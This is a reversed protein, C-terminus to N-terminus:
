EQDGKGSLRLTLLVETGGQEPVEIKLGCPSGYFLRIRNHVNRMGIRASKEVKTDEFSANLRERVDQEMGKGNDKIRIKLLSGCEEASVHLTGERRVEKLGHYIANEVLPQLVAKLIQRNELEAPCDTTFRFVGPYRIELISVYSNVHDLEERLSITESDHSLGIRLLRSLHLIMRSADQNLGLDSLQKIADLTNYIFHPNIQHKLNEIETLRREDQERHLNTITDDLRILLSKVGDGISKLEAPGQAELSVEMNGISVKEIKQALETLPSLLWNTIRRVLLTSIFFFAALVLILLRNIKRAQNLLHSAPVAAALKWNMGPIAHSVAFLKERGETLFIFSDDTSDFVLRRQSYSLEEAEREKKLEIFGNPGILTVYGSDSLINEPFSNYFFSEKIDLILFGSGSGSSGLLVNLSVTKSEKRVSSILSQERMSWFINKGNEKTNEPIDVTSLNKPQPYYSRYFLFDKGGPYLLVSEVIEHHREFLDDILSNLHLRDEVPLTESSNESLIERIRNDNSIKIISYYLEQLRYSLYKENQSIISHLASESNQRVQVAILSYSIAGSALVAFFAIGLFSLLLSNHLSAKRKLFSRVKSPDLRRILDCDM